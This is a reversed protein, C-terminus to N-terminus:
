IEALMARVKKEILDRVERFEAMPLNKPDPIQWDERRRARVFPCADGCGMTAVFDFEVEPLDSLSKCDQVSLDYGVERMAETAKCNVAGAPRSGASYAEVSAGGHIRAFAEAMQSRNANEVCVFLVRKMRPDGAGRSFLLGARSRLPWALVGVGAGILPATLYVWLSDFQLSVLAPALSRAPNMSAGSIPGAFMAELGIMAGVAIGATIGKEKAGVSVGPSFTGVLEAALRKM